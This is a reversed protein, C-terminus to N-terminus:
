YKFFGIAVAVDLEPSSMLAVEYDEDIFTGM